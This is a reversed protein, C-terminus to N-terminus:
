RGGIRPPWQRSGLRRNAISWILPASADIPALELKEGVIRRTVRGLGHVKGLLGTRVECAEDRGDGKLDRRHSSLRVPEPLAVRKAVVM